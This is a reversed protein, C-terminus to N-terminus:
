LKAQQKTHTHFKNAWVSPQVCASPTQPLTSLLINPGLFSSTIPSHLFSCLSSSLSRYKEGFIIRTIFDLIILHTPCTARISSPLATYFTKTSFASPFLGSRLDLCLYSSLILIYSLSIPHPCPSSHDPEPCPCTVPVQSHPILGEPEM